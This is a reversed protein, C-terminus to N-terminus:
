KGELLYKALRTDNYNICAQVMEKTEEGLLGVHQGAATIVTKIGELDKCWFNSVTRYEVGYDKNRYAGAKGYLRRRETDKDLLVSQVGLLFDMNQVIERNFEPSPNDYGIHIHGGCTRLGEPGKPRPNEAGTYANYDPDCGFTRAAENDLQDPEFYGSPIIAIELGNPECVNKNVWDYVYQFYEWVIQSTEEVNTYEVPPINFEVAVNDEQVFCGNGIPKPNDKSGGVLGIASILKGTAKDRLFFEPDFGIKM